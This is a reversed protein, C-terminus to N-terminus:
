LMKRPRSLLTLAMLVISLVTGLVVSIMDAWGSSSARLIILHYNVSSFYVFLTSGILMNLGRSVGYGKVYGLAVLPLTIAIIFILVDAIGRWITIGALIVALILDVVTVAWVYLDSIRRSM